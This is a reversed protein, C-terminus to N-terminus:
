RPSLPVLPSRTTRLRLPDHVFSQLFKYSYKPIAAMEAFTTIERTQFTSLYGTWLFAAALADAKSTHNPQCEIRDEVCSNKLSAPKKGLLPRVYRTCLFPLDRDLDLRRLEAHLFSMDFTANHAAIVCGSIAFLLAEVIKEFTPASRVDRDTIGHVWSAGMRREPNILTDFVLMPEAGPDIRVVSIEVPRDYGPSMGTTEFDLVAIPTEHLRQKSIAM